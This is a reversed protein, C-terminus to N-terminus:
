AGPESFLGLTAGRQQMLRFTELIQDYPRNFELTTFHGATRQCVLDLPIFGDWSYSLQPFAGRGVTRIATVGCKGCAGAFQLFREDMESGFTGSAISLSQLNSAPLMQLINPIEM